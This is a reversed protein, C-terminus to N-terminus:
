PGPGRKRPPIRRSQTLRPLQHSLRDKDRREGSHRAHFDDVGQSAVVVSLGYKRGEKMLRPLTVDKALRHAEDLVVALRMGAGQPWAFMDNYIKRLLFAGAGLQVQELGLRSLDVVLGGERTPDFDGAPENAFLGFDTLPRLRARANRTRSEAETAEMQDIFESLTPLGDGVENGVWGRATYAAALAEYVQNRQIEGLGTVMGVIEAVEWAAHAAPNPRDHPM